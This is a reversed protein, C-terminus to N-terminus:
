AAYLDISKIENIAIRIERNHRDTILICDKDLTRNKNLEITKGDKLYVIIDLGKIALYHKLMTKFNNKEGKKKMNGRTTHLKKNDANHRRTSYTDDPTNFNILLFIVFYDNKQQLIWFHTIELDIFFIIM